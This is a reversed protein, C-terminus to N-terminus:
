QYLYLLREKNFNLKEKDIITLIENLNDGKKFQSYGISVLPLIDLELSQVAVEKFFNKNLDVFDLDTNKTIIAFEDVAIRYCFGLNGYFSKIHSSIRKVIEDAQFRSYNAQIKKFNDLEILIIVSKKKESNIDRLFSSYNLLTTQFDIHEILEIHLCYYVFSSISICFWCVYIEPFIIQVTSGAILFFTTAGIQIFNKNHFNRSLEINEIIFLFINIFSVIVYIFFYVDRSYSNQSDVKFVSKGYFLSIAFWFFYLLWLFIRLKLKKEPLIAKVLFIFVTPTLAFGLFNVLIHLFRFKVDSGDLILTLYELLIILCIMFFTLLFNRRQNKEMIKNRAIIIGFIITMVVNSICTIIFDTKM